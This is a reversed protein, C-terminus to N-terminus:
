FFSFALNGNPSLSQKDPGSTQLQSQIYNLLMLFNYNWVFVLKDILNMVSLLIGIFSNDRDVCENSSFIAIGDIPIVIKKMPLLIM